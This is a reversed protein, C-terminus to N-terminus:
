ANAAVMVLTLIYVHLVAGYLVSRTRWALWGFGLGGLITSLAEPEPKGLHFFVFPLAALLVGIGGAWRVLAMMLFGRFLFEAPVVDLANILALYPADDSPLVYYGRFEPFTAAVLIIPTALAAAAAAALIGARWHGIRLGFESPREGLALLALLPLLGFMITRQIGRALVLDAGPVLLHYWDVLLITVTFVILLTERAPMELGALRLTADAPIPRWRRVRADDAM